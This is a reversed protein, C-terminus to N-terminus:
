YEDPSSRRAASSRLKRQYNQDDALRKKAATISEDITKRSRGLRKAIETVSLGYELRLSLCERQKNTLDAFVLYVETKKPGLGEFGKPGDTAAEPAKTGAVLLEKERERLAVDRKQWEELWVEEIPKQGRIKAFGGRLVAELPTAPPRGIGLAKVQEELARRETRFEEIPLRVEFLLDARRFLEAVRAGRVSGTADHLQRDM